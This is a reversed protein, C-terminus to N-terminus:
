PERYSLWLKSVCEDFTGWFVDFRAQDFYTELYEKIRQREGTEPELQMSVSRPIRRGDRSDRTSEILGRFLVRFDWDYVDYGLLLLSRGSVAMKVAAPIGRVDHPLHVAHPEMTLRALCDLHDDETLVLSQPHKDIGFLHYVLPREACPKYESDREFVSEIHSLSEDWYFIESEPQKRRTEALAVELFDHHSTTIYVPLPLEALRRLPDRRVDKVRPYGLRHAIESFSLKDAQENLEEVQEVADEDDAKEARGLEMALLFGKLTDLYHEKASLRDKKHVSYYQAVRALDRNYVEPLPSRIEDDGAWAEAINAVGGFISAAVSNGLIPTVGGSEVLGAASALANNPRTRRELKKLKKLM